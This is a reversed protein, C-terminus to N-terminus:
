SSAKIETWARDWAQTAAGLDAYFELRLLLEATPYALPRRQLALAAQNPSGYGTADSVAAAVEPRLVYNLFAHAARKHPADRLVVFGDTWIASGQQPVMFAIEPRELAAQAADGNWLQAIWVDGAVLDGKVPASKWARLNAKAAIADGKAAALAAADTDNLSRGRLRLMAGLVERPDDMMTMRGKWRADHFTQWGAPPAAVLDRRWAIGTLGWQWPVTWTDAPDHPPHNFLPAINGRNGLYRPHLPALLDTARLAPLLYSSPVALDYGGGGAQLKALMEENSEYTDYSVRVGFEREFGAM